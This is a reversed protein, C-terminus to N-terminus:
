VTGDYVYGQRMATEITIDTPNCLVVASIGGKVADLLIKFFGKGHYQQRVGAYPIYRVCDIDIYYGIYAQGFDSLLKEDSPNWSKIDQIM